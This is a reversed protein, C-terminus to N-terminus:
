PQLAASAASVDRNIAQSARREDGVREKQATIERTIGFGAIADFKRRL